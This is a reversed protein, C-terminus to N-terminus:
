VRIDGRSLASTFLRGPAIGLGAHLVYDTTLRNWRRARRVMAHGSGSLGVFLAEATIPRVAQVYRRSEPASTIRDRTGHVVLLRRGALQNQPEGPTIWPALAVVGVVGDEGAARIAARGGMSHGVLVVPVDGHHARLQRVAWAIDDIPRTGNGNWGRCAFLLRWAALGVDAGALRLQRAIPVMRLVAVQRSSAASHSDEKGGHLVLAVANATRPKPDGILAARLGDRTAPAM